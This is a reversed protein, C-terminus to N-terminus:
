EDRSEIACRFNEYTSPLSYLLLVSLLDEHIEIEMEQLKDVADFFIRVHERVDDDDAMKQLTLQKLLRGKRAPGSSQYISQLKLWIENSTVCGKIQKLESPSIALVLDSRAKRDAAEWATAAAQSIARAEANEGTVEPKVQVGIVYEWTDNRVLLAEVQMKWTDYNDKTLTEIRTSYTSM